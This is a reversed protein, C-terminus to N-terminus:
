VYRLVRLLIQLFSVHIWTQFREKMFLSGTWARGPVRTVQSRKKSLEMCPRCCLCLWLPNCSAVINEGLAVATLRAFDSIWDFWMSGLNLTEIGMVRCPLLTCQKKKHSRDVLDLLYYAIHVKAARILAKQSTDVGAIYELTNPEELLVELLSGSGCGLDVQRM